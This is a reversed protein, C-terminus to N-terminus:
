NKVIVYNCAITRSKSLNEQNAAATNTDVKANKSCAGSHTYANKTLTIARRQCMIKIPIQSASSFTYKKKRQVIHCGIQLLSKCFYM